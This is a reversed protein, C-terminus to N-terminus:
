KAWVGRKAGIAEQEAKWAKQLFADYDAEPVQLSDGECATMTRGPCVGDRVLELNLCSEGDKLWVYSWRSRPNDEEWPGDWPGNTVVPLVRASPHRAVWDAVRQEIDTTTPALMMGNGMLWYLTSPDSKRQGLPGSWEIDSARLGSCGSLLLATLM